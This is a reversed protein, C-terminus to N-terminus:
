VQRVKALRNEFEFYDVFIRCSACVFGSMKRLWRDHGCENCVVLLKEDSLPKM